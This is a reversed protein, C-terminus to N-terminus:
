YSFAALLGWPTKNVAMSTIQVFVLLALLWFGLRLAQTKAKFAFVGLAIYVVLGIIKALLWAQSSPSMQLHIALTLGSIIMFTNVIHPTIKVLKRQLLGSNRLMLIGRGLFILFSLIVLSLHLHKLLLYM